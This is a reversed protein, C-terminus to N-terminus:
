GLEVLFLEAHRRGKIFFFHADASVVRGFRSGIHGACQPCRRWEITAAQSGLIGSGSGGRGQGLFLLFVAAVFRLDGEIGFDAAVFEIFPGVGEDGFGVVGVPVRVFVVVARILVDIDWGRGDVFLGRRAGIEVPPIGMLLVLLVRVPGGDRVRMSIAAGVGAAVEWVRVAEVVGWGGASLIVGVLFDMSEIDGISGSGGSRGVAVFECNSLHVFFVVLFVVNVVCFCVIAGIQQRGWVPLEVL